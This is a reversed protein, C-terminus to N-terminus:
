FLDQFVKHSIGFGRVTQLADGLPSQQVLRNMSREGLGLARELSQYGLTVQLPNRNRPRGRNVQKSRLLSILGLSVDALCVRRRLHGSLIVRARIRDARASVQM